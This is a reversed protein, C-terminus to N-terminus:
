HNMAGSPALPIWGQDTQVSTACRAVETDLAAQQGPSLRAFVKQSSQPCDNGSLKVINLTVNGSNRLAHNQGLAALSTDAQVAVVALAAHSTVPAVFIPVGLSVVMDIKSSATEEPLQRIFLRFFDESEHRASTYRFRVLREKKGSLRFTPPSVIFDKTPQFQEKGDVWQVRMVEVEIGTAEDGRNGVLVASFETATNLRILVPSVAIPLNAASCSASASILMAGAYGVWLFLRRHM